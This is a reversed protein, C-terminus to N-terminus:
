TPPTLIQDLNQSFKAFYLHFLKEELGAVDKLQDESKNPIYNETEYFKKIKERCFLQTYVRGKLTSVELKNSM